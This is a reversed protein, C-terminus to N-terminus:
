PSAWSTESQKQEQKEEVSGSEITAIATDLERYLRNDVDERWFKQM